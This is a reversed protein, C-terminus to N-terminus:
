LRRHNRRIVTFLTLCPLRSDLLQAGFLALAKRQRSLSEYLRESLFPQDFRRRRAVGHAQSVALPIQAIHREILLLRLSDQTLLLLSKLLPAITLALTRCPM